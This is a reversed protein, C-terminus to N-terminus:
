KLSGRWGPDLGDAAVVLMRASGSGGLETEGAEDATEDGTYTTGGGEDSGLKSM